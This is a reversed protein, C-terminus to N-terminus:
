LANSGGAATSGAVVGQLLLVFSKNVDCSTNLSLNNGAIISSLVM